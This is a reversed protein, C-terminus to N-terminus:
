CRRPPACAEQAKIRALALNVLGFVVLTVRSTPDALEELPLLLALALVLAVTMTTAYLPTRTVPSVRQFAPPLNDQRARRILCRHAGDLASRPCLRPAGANRRAAAAGILVYIGAGITV